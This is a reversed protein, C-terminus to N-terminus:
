ALFSIAFEVAGRRIDDRTSKQIDRKFARVVGDIYLGIWVTGVPKEDTGGDPGAIGTISLAVNAGSVRAAGEAMQRACEFSVAGHNYLTSASVGLTRMKADNSYTVFGEVFVDSCGAVSVFEAALMGGTCSEAVALTKGWRRLLELAEAASTMM